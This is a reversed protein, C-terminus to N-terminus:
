SASFFMEPDVFVGNVSVAFYLDAKDTFGTEGSLAILKGGEVEEGEFASLVSLHYYHTMIGCGHDIVVAQGTKWTEGAFVVKGKAASKVSTKAEVGFSIGEFYVQPPVGNYLVESGFATEVEGEVPKNLVPAEWLFSNSNKGALAKLFSEYEAIGAPSTAQNYTEADVNKMTFGKSSATVGIKFDFSYEGHKICVDYDGGMNDLALPLLAFKGNEGKYVVPSKNTILETEVTLAEGEGINEVHLVVLGGSLVDTKEITIIPSEKYVCLFSWKGEGFFMKEESEVWRASVTVTFEDGDFLEMNELKSYNKGDKTYVYVYNDPKESFKFVDKKLAESSLSIIEDKSSVEGETYRFFDEGTKKFSWEYVSPLIAKEGEKLSVTVKPLHRSAYVSEYEARLLMENPVEVRRVLGSGDVIMSEGWLSPYFHYSKKGGNKMEFEIVFPKEKFENTQLTGDETSDLILDVYKEIDEKKSYRHKYREDSISVAAVDEVAIESNAIMVLYVAMIVTPLILLVGLIKGIKSFGNL